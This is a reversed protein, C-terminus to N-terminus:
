ERELSDQTIKMDDIELSVQKMSKSSIDRTVGYLSIRLLQLGNERDSGYM